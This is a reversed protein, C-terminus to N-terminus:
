TTDTELAAKLLKLQKELEKGVLIGILPAAFREIGKLIEIQSTQTMETGQGIPKLDYTIRMDHMPDKARIKMEHPPSLAVIESQAELTHPGPNHVFRYTAGRAPGNGSLSEIEEVSPCWIPDNLPNHVFDFVDEPSRDIRISRQVRLTTLKFM